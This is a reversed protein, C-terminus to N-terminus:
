YWNLVTDYETCLQVFDHMDILTIASDINKNELGRMAIDQKIAYLTKNACAQHLPQAILAAYVGNELLIIGDGQYFQQLCQKLCSKEFPSQNVTHLISPM